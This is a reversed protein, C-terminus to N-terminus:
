PCGNGILIVKDEKLSYQINLASSLSDLVEQLTDAEFTGTVTCDILELSAISIKTNYRNSLIEVVEHIPSDVFVLKNEKWALFNKNLNSRALIADTDRFYFGAMGPELVVEEDPNRESYFSISGSVVIVEVSDEQVTTKLNFSTGLVEVVANSAHVLFPRWSEKKIEFFGEGVLHMERRRNQFGEPYSIRSNENLWVFSGDPLAHRLTEGRVTYVEIIRTPSPSSLITIIYTLIVLIFVVAASWILFSKKLKGTKKDDEFNHVSKTEKISKL